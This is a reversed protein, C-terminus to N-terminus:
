IGVLHVGLPRRPSLTEIYEARALALVATKLPQQALVGNPAM